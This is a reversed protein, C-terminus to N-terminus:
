GEEHYRNWVTLFQSEGREHLFPAGKEICLWLRKDKPKVYELLEDQNATEAIAKLLFAKFEERNMLNKSPDQKSSGQPTDLYERWFDNRLFREADKPKGNCEEAYHETAIKLGSWDKRSIKEFMRSAATKGIKRGNRKPYSNWWREFAESYSAAASDTKKKKKEKNNKNSTDRKIDTRQGTLHGNATGDSTGDSTKNSTGNEDLGLQYHDYNCITILTTLHGREQKIMNENELFNLFRSVKGRSWKWRVKLTIISDANQGRLVHIKQGKAFFYGDKYNARGILDVWAQGKTFPQALWVPHSLLKRNIQFHNKEAM